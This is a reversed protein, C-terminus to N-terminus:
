CMYKCIHMTPYLEDRYQHSEEATGAVSCGGSKNKKFCDCGQKCDECMDYSQTVTLDNAATSM